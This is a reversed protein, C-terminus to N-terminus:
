APPRMRMLQELWARLTPNTGDQAVQKRVIVDGGAAVIRASADAVSSYGVIVCRVGAPELERLRRTVHDGREDGLYFDMLVVDPLVGGRALRAFASLAERGTLFSDFEVGDIRVITNRAVEHHAETDDVLWLRLTM